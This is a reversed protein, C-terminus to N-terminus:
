PSKNRADFDGLNKWVANIFHWACGDDRHVDLEQMMANHEGMAWDGMLRVKKATLKTNGSHEKLVRLIEVYDEECHDIMLALLAPFSEDKLDVSDSEFVAHVLWAQEWFSRGNLVPCIRCLQDFGASTNCSCDRASIWM